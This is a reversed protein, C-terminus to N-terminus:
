HVTTRVSGTDTIASANGALTNGNLFTDYNTNTLYVGFTNATIVNGQLLTGQAFPYAVPSNRETLAFGNFTSAQTGCPVLNPFEAPLYCTSGVMSPGPGTFSNNLFENGYALTGRLTDGNYAIASNGIVEQDNYGGGRPNLTNGAVWNYWQIDARTPPNVNAFTRIGYSNSLSNNAFINDYSKTYLELDGQNHVATFINDFAINHYSVYQDITYVSTADPTITWPVSVTVQTATNASITALQGIGTGGLIMIKYGVLAKPTFSQVSDNLTTTTNQGTSQSYVVRNAAQFLFGEGDNASPVGFYGSDKNNYLFSCCPGLDVDRHEYAGPCGPQM